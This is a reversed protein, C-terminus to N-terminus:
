NPVNCNESGTLKINDDGEKWSTGWSNRIRNSAEDYGEQIV